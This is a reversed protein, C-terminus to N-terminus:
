TRDLTRVLTVLTAKPEHAVQQWTFRLVRIGAGSILQADRRRDAVFRHWSRHYAFGDIEVATRHEPWYFDIEYGHVVVNVEPQALGTDRVLELFRVEAESRTLATGGDRLMVARLLRAGPRGRQRALLRKLAADSVLGIREARAVARELERGAVLGALDAITRVASTVAIGEVTAADEPRLDAARHGVIGPRRTPTRGAPLVVHVPPPPDPLLNWLAAAHIHSVLAGPGCALLAAMEVAGRPELGDRLHGLIYVGRHLGRLRGRRLRLEVQRSTLGVSLLQGRTVVGHQSAALAAIPEELAERM